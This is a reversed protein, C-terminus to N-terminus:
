ILRIGKEELSILRQKFLFGVAKKFVKKSIAFKDFIVAADSKDTLPLFGGSQKL